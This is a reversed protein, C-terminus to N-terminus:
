CAVFDRVIVAFPPREYIRTDPRSRRAPCEGTEVMVFNPPKISWLGGNRNSIRQWLRTMGPRDM